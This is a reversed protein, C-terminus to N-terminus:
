VAGLFATLRRQLAAADRIQCEWIVLARWGQAKLAALTASDRASNRAIKARWYAGNAQPLRAGRKCDHGHWFCGHVFIAARRPRLVIDPKGPLARANLRYRYGAAWLLKRVAIEPKTDKAKVARMVASREDPTFRDASV